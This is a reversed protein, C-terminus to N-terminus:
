KHDKQGQRVEEPQVSETICVSYYQEAVTPKNLYQRCAPIKFGIMFIIINFGIMFIVIINFLYMQTDLYMKITVKNEVSKTINLRCGDKVM